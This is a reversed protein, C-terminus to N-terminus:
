PPDHESAYDTANSRHGNGNGNFHFEPDAPAAPAHWPDGTRSLKDGLRRYLDEILSQQMDVLKWANRDIRPKEENSPLPTEAARLPHQLDFLRVWHRLERSLREFAMLQASPKETAMYYGEGAQEVKEVFPKMSLARSARSVMVNLLAVHHVLHRAAPHGAAASREDLDAVVNDYETQEDPCPPRESEPLQMLYEGYTLTKEPVGAPLAADVAHFGNGAGGPDRGNHTTSKMGIQELHRATAGRQFPDASGGGLPCSKWAPCHTGCIMLRRSYLGHLEANRNGAPAGTLEAGGHHPCRGSDHTSPMLCPKDGVSRAGCIRRGLSSERRDVEAIWKKGWSDACPTGARTTVPLTTASM